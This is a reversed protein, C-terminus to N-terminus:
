LSPAYGNVAAARHDRRIPLLAILLAIGAFASLILLGVPDVLRHPALPGTLRVPPASNSVWRSFQPLVGDIYTSSLFAVVVAATLGALVAQRAPGSRNWLAAALASLALALVAPPNGTPIDPAMLCLLAWLMFGASGFAAGAGLAAAAARSRRATVAAVALLHISLVVTWVVLGFRAVSAPHPAARVWAVTALAEAAVVAFGVARILHAPRGGAPGLGFRGALLVVALAGVLGYGATRLPGDAVQLDLIAAALLVAMAPVWDLHALLRRTVALVRDLYLLGTFWRFPPPERLPRHRM